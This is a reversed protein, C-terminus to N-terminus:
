ARRDARPRLILYDSRASNRAPPITDVVHVSIHNEAVLTSPSSKDYAQLIVDVILEGNAGPVWSSIAREPTWQSKWLM